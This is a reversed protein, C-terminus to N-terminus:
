LYWFRFVATNVNIKLPFVAVFRLNISTNQTEVKCDITEVLVNKYAKMKWFHCHKGCLKIRNTPAGCGGACGEFFQSSQKIECNTHDTPVGSVWMNYCMCYFILACYFTIQARIYKHFELTIICFYQQIMVVQIVNLNLKRCGRKTSHTM